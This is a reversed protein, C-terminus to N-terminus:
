KYCSDRRKAEERERDSFHFAHSSYYSVEEFQKAHATKLHYGIHTVGGDKQKAFKKSCHKCKLTDTDNEIEFHHDYKTM